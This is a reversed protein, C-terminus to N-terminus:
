LTSRTKGESPQHRPVRGGLVPSLEPGEELYDPRLCLPDATAGVETLLELAYLLGVDLDEHAVILGRLHQCPEPLARPHAGIPTQEWQSSLGM